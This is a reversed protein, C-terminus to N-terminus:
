PGVTHAEFYVCIVGPCKKQAVNLGWDGSTFPLINLYDAVQSMRMHNTCFVSKM